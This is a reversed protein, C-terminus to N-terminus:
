KVYVEKSDREGDDSCAIWKVPGTYGAYDKSRRKYQREAKNLASRANRAEIEAFQTDHEYIKFTKM